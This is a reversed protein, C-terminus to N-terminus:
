AAVQESQAYREGCFPCYTAVVAMPKGRRKENVKGTQIVVREPNAFLTTVLASNYERLKNDVDSICGCM